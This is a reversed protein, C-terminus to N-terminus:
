TDNPPQWHKLKHYEYTQINISSLAELEFMEQIYQKSVWKTFKSM